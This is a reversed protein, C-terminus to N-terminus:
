RNRAKVLAVAKEGASVKGSVALAFNNIIASDAIERQVMAMTAERATPMRLQAGRMFRTSQLNMWRSALRM